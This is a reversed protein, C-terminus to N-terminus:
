DIVVPEKLKVPTNRPSKRSSKMSTPADLLAVRDEDKYMQAIEQVSLANSGFAYTVDIAGPCKLKASKEKFGFELKAVNECHESCHIYHYLNNPKLGLKEFRPLGPGLFRMKEKPV